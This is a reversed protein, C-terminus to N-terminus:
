QNNDEIKEVEQEDKLVITAGDGGILRWQSFDQKARMGDKGTAVTGTNTTYKTYKESYVIEKKPDWFMQETELKDGESNIIVVNSKAEWIGTTIDQKAWNATIEAKLEGTKEYLWVHLGEPFEDRPEKASTYQKILPSILKMQLRASDSFLMEVNTATLDPEEEPDIIKNIVELDNACSFLM